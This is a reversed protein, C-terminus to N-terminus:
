SFWYSLDKILNEQEILSWRIRNNGFKGLDVPVDNLLQHRKPYIPLRDKDKSYYSLRCYTSLGMTKMHLKGRSHALLCHLVTITTDLDDFSNLRRFLSILKRGWGKTGLGAMAKIEKRITEKELQKRLRSCEMNRIQDLIKRRNVKYFSLPDAPFVAEEIEKRDEVELLCETQGFYM